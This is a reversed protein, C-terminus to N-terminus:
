VDGTPRFDPHFYLRLPRIKGGYEATSLGCFGQFCPTKQSSCQSKQAGILSEKKVTLLSPQASRLDRQQGYCM